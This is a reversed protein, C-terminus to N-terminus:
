EPLYFVTENLGVPPSNLDNPNQAPIKRASGDVFVYHAFGGSLTNPHKNSTGDPLSETLVWNASYGSSDDLCADAFLVTRTPRSIADINTSVDLRKDFGNMGFSGSWTVPKCQKRVTPNIFRTGYYERTRVIDTNKPFGLYGEATLRFAWSTYGLGDITKYISPLEGKNDNAFLRAGMHLQKLNSLTTASAAALRVKGVTPIMIAALIGIIAVVTLLEILTFARLRFHPAPNM